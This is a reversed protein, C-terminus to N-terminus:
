NVKHNHCEIIKAEAIALTRKIQSYENELCLVDESVIGSAASISYINNDSNSLVTGGAISYEATRDSEPNSPKMNQKHRPTGSQERSSKKRSVNKRFIYNCIDCM